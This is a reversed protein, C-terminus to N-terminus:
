RLTIENMELASSQWWQEMFQATCNHKPWVVTLPKCQKPFTQKSLPPFFGKMLLLIWTGKKLIQLWLTFNQGVKQAKFCKKADSLFSVASVAVRSPETNLCKTEKRSKLLLILFMGIALLVIISTLSFTMLQHCSSYIRDPWTLFMLRDWPGFCKQCSLLRHLLGKQVRINKEQLHEKSFAYKSMHLTRLLKCWSKLLSHINCAWYVWETLIVWIFHIRWKMKKGKWRNGEVLYMM